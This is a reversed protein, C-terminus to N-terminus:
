SANVFFLGVKDKKPEASNLLTILSTNNNNQIKAFLSLLDRKRYLVLEKENFLDAAFQSGNKFQWAGIADEIPAYVPIHGRLREKSYSLYFGYAQTYELVKICRKIDIARKFKSADTALIIYNNTTQKLYSFISEKLSAAEIFYYGAYKKQLQNYLPRKEPTATYIITTPIASSYNHASALTGELDIPNDHSLVLLESSKDIIATSLFPNYERLPMYRSRARIIRGCQEQLGLSVRFDNIPNNVNYVYLVKDMFTFNGNAMELMPFMLAYDYCVPFFKSETLLDELKIKKALGAYFTRLGTWLWFRHSRYSNTDIVAKPTAQADGLQNSPWRIYQGHALWIKPDQYTNNIYSLVNEDAFWDDGDLQVIIEYDKCLHIARYHNALARRRETNRILLFKDKQPHNKIYQKVFSGTHDPSCDDIYIVRYNHYKQSFVSDLNRKYWQKNNYSTIVVVLPKEELTSYIYSNLSLLVILLLKKM